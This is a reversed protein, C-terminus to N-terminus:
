TIVFVESSNESIEQIVLQKNRNIIGGCEHLFIAHYRMRLAAADLGRAKITKKIKFLSLGLGESPCFM